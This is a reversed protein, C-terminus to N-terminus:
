HLPAPARVARLVSYGQTFAIVTYAIAYALGLGLAGLRLLFLFSTIMTFGWITAHLNQSWLRGTAVLVVRFFASASSIGYATVVTALVPGGDAFGHGYIRMIWSALLAVPAVVAVTVAAMSLAMLRLFRNFAARDSQRYTNALIPIAPATIQSTALGVIQSLAYAATFLGVDAFGGPRRALLVRGLWEFPQASIGMLIAPAVHSGLIPLHERLPGRTIEIGRKRCASTVAYQKLFFMVAPAAVTGALAGNLGFLLAGGAVAVVSVVGEVGSLFAISRFDELGALIGIQLGSVTGLLLLVSLLRLGSALDPAHLAHTALPGAAAIGVLTSAGSLAVAVTMLAGIIRGARRPDITRFEAVLKTATLSIGGGALIGLTAVTSRLMGFEGFTTKGLIRAALVSAAMAGGQMAATGAVNWIAGRAVRARLGDSAGMRSVLAAIASL